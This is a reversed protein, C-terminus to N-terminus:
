GRSAEERIYVESAMSSVARCGGGRNKVEEDEWGGEREPLVRATEQEIWTATHCGTTATATVARVRTGHGRTAPM